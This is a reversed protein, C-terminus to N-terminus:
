YFVPSLIFHLEVMVMRLQREKYGDPTIDASKELNSQHRLKPLVPWDDQYVDYVPKGSCDAQNVADEGEEEYDNALSQIPESIPPEELSENDFKFAVQDKELFESKDEFQTNEIESNGEASENETGFELKTSKDDNVYNADSISKDFLDLHRNKEAARTPICVKELQHKAELSQIETDDLDEHDGVKLTSAIESVISPGSVTAKSDDEEFDKQQTVSSANENSIDIPSKFTVHKSPTEVFGSNSNAIPHNTFQKSLPNAAGENQNPDADIFINKDRVIMGNDNSIESIALSVDLNLQCSKDTICSQSIAKPTSSLRKKIPTESSGGIRDFVKSPTLFDEAAFYQDINNFQNFKAALGLHHENNQNTNIRTNLFNDGGSAHLTKTSFPQPFNSPYQVFPPVVYNTYKTGPPVTNAELNLEKTLKSDISRILDQLLTKDSLLNSNTELKERVDMLSSIHAQGPVPVHLLSPRASWDPRRGDITPDQAPESAHLLSPRASWDPQIDFGPRTPDQAPVSAHLLSPQTLWDPQSDLGLSSTPLESQSQRRWEFSSSATTGLQLHDQSGVRSQSQRTSGEVRDNTTSQSLSSYISDFNLTRCVSSRGHESGPINGVIVM